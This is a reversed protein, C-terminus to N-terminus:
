FVNKALFYLLDAEYMQKASIGLEMPSRQLHFENIGENLGATGFLLDPRKPNSSLQEFLSKRVGFDTFPFAFATIKQPFHQQVWEVSELTQLMQEEENIYQYEPHNMSHAGIAFGEEQLKKLESIELYPKEKKLFSVFDVNLLIALEDLQNSQNHKASLIWKKWANVTKIKSDFPFEPLEDIGLHMLEKILLAAKYRFFLVKNGVFDPNVFITAPVGRAKLIPRVVTFVERLGDDFSLHFSPKQLALEGKRYLFVEELSIPSFHQLLFDLDAEFEAVSKHKYLSSIHALPQNSVTHYFPLVLKKGSLALLNKVGVLQAPFALIHRLAKNRV